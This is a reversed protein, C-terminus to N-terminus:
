SREKKKPAVAPTTLARDVSWGRADIRMILTTYKIGVEESWAQLTQTRGRFELFRSSRRNNSNEKATVWRCNGPEYDGGNDIRDLQHKSTPREGMDEKFAKFSSWRECVKIGRGGYRPYSKENKNNCRRRMGAWLRYMVTTADIHKQVDTM